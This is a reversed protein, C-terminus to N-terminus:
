EFSGSIVNGIAVELFTLVCQVDKANPSFIAIKRRRGM